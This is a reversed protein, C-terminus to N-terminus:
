QRRSIGWVSGGWLMVRPPTPVKTGYVGLAIDQRARTLSSGSTLGTHNNAKAVDAARHYSAQALLAFVALWGTNPALYTEQLVVMKRLFMSEM